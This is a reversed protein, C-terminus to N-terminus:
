STLYFLEKVYLDVTHKCDYILLVISRILIM